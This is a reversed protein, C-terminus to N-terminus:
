EDYWSKSLKYRSIVATTLVLIKFNYFEKSLFNEELHKSDCFYSKM